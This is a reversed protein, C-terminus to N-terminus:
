SVIRVILVRNIPSPATQGTFDITNMPEEEDNISPRDV